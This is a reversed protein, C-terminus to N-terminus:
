VLAIDQFLSLAKVQEDRTVEHQWSRGTVSNALGMELITTHIIRNSETFVGSWSRNLIGQFRMRRNNAEERHKM